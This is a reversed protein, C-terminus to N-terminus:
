RSPRHSSSPRRLAGRKQRGAFVRRFSPDAVPRLYDVMRDIVILMGTTTAAYLWYRRQLARYAGARRRVNIVAAEFENSSSYRCAWASGAREVESQAALLGPPDFPDAKGM